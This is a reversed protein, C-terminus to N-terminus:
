NKEALLTMKTGTMRISTNGSQYGDWQEELMLMDGNRVGKGTVQFRCVISNDSNFLLSESTLINTSMTFPELLISDGKVTAQMTYAGGNMDNMTITVRGAKSKDNMIHMQGNKHVMVFSNEGDADVVTLEGSLKYSYEGSFQRESRNCSVFLMSLLCTIIIVYCRKM